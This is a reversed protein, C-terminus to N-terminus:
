AAHKTQRSITLAKSSKHIVLDAQLIMYPLLGLHHSDSFPTIEVGWNSILLVRAKPCAQGLISSHMDLLEAVDHISVSIIM